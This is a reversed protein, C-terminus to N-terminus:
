HHINILVGCHPCAITVSYVHMSCDGDIDVTEANMPTIIKGCDPNPCDMTAAESDLLPLHYDPEGNCHGCVTVDLNALEKTPYLTQCKQCYRSLVERCKDCFIDNVIYDENNKKAKEAAIEYIKKCNDCLPNEIKINGNNM